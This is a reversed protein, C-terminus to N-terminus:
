CDGLLWNVQKDYPEQVNIARTKRVNEYETKWKNCKGTWFSHGACVTYPEREYYVEEKTVTKECTITKKPFIMISGVLLIIIIIWVWKGGKSKEKEEM